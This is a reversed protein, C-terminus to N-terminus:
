LILKIGNIELQDHLELEEETVKKCKPCVCTMVNGIFKIGCVICTRIEIRNKREYGSKKAHCKKCLVQLNEPDDTGGDERPIIHDLQLNDRSGCIKCPNNFKM